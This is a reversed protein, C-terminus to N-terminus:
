LLLAIELPSSSLFFFFSFLVLSACVAGKSLDCPTKLLFTM